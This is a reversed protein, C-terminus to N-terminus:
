NDTYTFHDRYNIELNHNAADDDPIDREMTICVCPIWSKGVGLPPANLSPHESDLVPQLTVKNKPQQWNLSYRKVPASQWHVISGGSPVEQEVRGDNFRTDLSPKVVIKKLVRVKSDQRREYSLFDPDINQNFLRQKAIRLHLDRYRNPAAAALDSFAKQIRGSSPNTYESLMSESIDDLILCQRITIHYNQRQLPTTSSTVWPALNAFNLEVKMNLFRANLQNGDIMGNQSGQTFPDTFSSPILVQSNAPGNVVSGSNSVINVGIQPSVRDKYETKFINQKVVAKKAKPKSVKPTYKWGYKKKAAKAQKQTVYTKAM